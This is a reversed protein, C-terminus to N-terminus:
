NQSFPRRHGPIFAAREQEEQLGSSAGGAVELHRGPPRQQLRRGGLNGDRVTMNRRRRDQCQVSYELYICVDGLWMGKGTHLLGIDQGRRKVCRLVSCQVRLIHM